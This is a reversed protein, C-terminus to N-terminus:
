ASGAIAEILQSVVLYGVNSYDWGDGAPYRLREADLRTLLEPV